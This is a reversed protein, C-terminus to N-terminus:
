DYAFPRPAARQSTARQPEASPRGHGAQCAAEAQEAEEILRVLLPSRSPSSEAPTLVPPLHEPNVM